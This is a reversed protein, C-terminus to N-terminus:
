RGLRHKKCFVQLVEDLDPQGIEQLDCSVKGTPKRIKIVLNLDIPTAIVVTDCDCAEITAALDRVQEEGYGMAPLLTGINPYSAFTDALRGLVFPRPDVLAAAGYKRAAVTGAGLKM